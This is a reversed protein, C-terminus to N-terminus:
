QRLRLVKLMDEAVCEQQCVKTANEKAIEKDIKKQPDTKFLSVLGDGSLPRTQLHFWPRSDATTTQISIRSTQILPQAKGM